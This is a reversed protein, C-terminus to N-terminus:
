ILGSFGEEAGVSGELAILDCEIYKLDRRTNFSANAHGCIAVLYPLRQQGLTNFGMSVIAM